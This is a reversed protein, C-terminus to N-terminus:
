GKDTSGIGGNRAASVDDTMTIGFPVFVGQAFAQGEEIVLEKNFASDNVVKIFIHGENDSYYYDADILAVTNALRMGHKFGMSSRPMILLCWGDEIKVRIGTPIKISEGPELVVTMPCKFDFGASGATARKPLEIGNYECTLVEDTWPGDDKVDKLYQELSVKYFEGVRNM